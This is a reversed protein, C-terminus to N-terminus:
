LTSHTSFAVYTIGTWEFRRLRVNRTVEDLGYRLLEEVRLAIFVPKGNKKKIVRHFQMSRKALKSLCIEENFVYCCFTFFDKVNNQIVNFEPISM